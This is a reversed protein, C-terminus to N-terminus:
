SASPVWYMIERGDQQDVWLFGHMIMDDIASQARVKDWGYNDQLITRTVYGGIFECAEYITKQDSSISQSMSVSKLWAKGNITFMEYGKGLGNLLSICDLVDQETVLLEFEPNEKLITVLEKLPILGGNIARTDNCIEVLRVALSIRYQEISGRSQMSLELPDIGILMCVQTFKARAETDNTIGEPHDRAFNVLASRFVALQTSLEDSHQQHLLQGLQAYRYKDDM